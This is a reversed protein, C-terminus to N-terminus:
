RDGSNGQHSCRAAFFGAAFANIGQEGVLMYVPPTPTGSAIAIEEVVNLLKRQKLDTTNPSILRAGLSEAVAKGGSSLAAMKYLSGGLVIASVGAGVMAFTRWDMQQTLSEITVVQGSSTYFLTMMVLLNTLLILIVVAVGFLFVLKATNSRVRDQSEFFNM